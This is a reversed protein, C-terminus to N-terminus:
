SRRRKTRKGERLTPTNRNAYQEWIRPAPSVRGLEREWHPLHLTIRRHQEMVGIIQGPIWIVELNKCRLSEARVKAGTFDDDQTVVVYGQNACWAMIDDDSVPTQGKEVQTSVFETVESVHIVDWEVCRLAQAV